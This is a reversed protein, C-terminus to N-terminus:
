LTQPNSSGIGGFFIEPNFMAAVRVFHAVRQKGLGKRWVEFYSLPSTSLSPDPQEVIKVIAFGEGAIFDLPRPSENLRNLMAYMQDQKRRRETFDKCGLVEALGKRKMGKNTPIFDGPKANRYTELSRDPLMSQKM